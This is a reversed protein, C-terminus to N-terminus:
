AAKWHPYRDRQQAVMSRAYDATAFRLARKPNMERVDFTGMGMDQGGSVAVVIVNCQGLIRGLTLVCWPSIPLQEIKRRAEAWAKEHLM